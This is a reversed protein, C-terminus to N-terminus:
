FFLHTLKKLLSFFLFLTREYFETENVKKDKEIYHLFM